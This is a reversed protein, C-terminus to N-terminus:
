DSANLLEEKKMDKMLKTFYQTLENVIRSRAEVREVWDCSSQIAVVLSHKLYVAVKKRQNALEIELGRDCETLLSALNAQLGELEEQQRRITQDVIRAYSEQVEKQRALVIAQRVQEANANIEKAAETEDVHALKQAQRKMGRYESPIRNGERELAIEQEMYIVELESIHRERMDGFINACDTRIRIKKDSNEAEIDDINSEYNAIAAAVGEKLWAKAKVIAGDIDTVVKLEIYRQIASSRDFDCDTIAQRKLVRLREILSMKSPDRHQITTLRLPDGVTYRKTSDGIAIDASVLDPYEEEIQKIERDRDRPNRVAARPSKAPSRGSLRSQRM